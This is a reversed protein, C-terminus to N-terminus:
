FPRARCLTASFLEGSDFFGRHHKPCNVCLSRGAMEVAALSRKFDVPLRCHRDEFLSLKPVFDNGHNASNM